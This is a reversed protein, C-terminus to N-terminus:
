HVNILCLPQFFCMYECLFCAKKDARKSILQVYSPPPLAWVKAVAGVAEIHHFIGIRIHPLPYGVCTSSRVIDLIMDSPRGGDKNSDNQAMM